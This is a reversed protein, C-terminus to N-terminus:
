ILNSIEVRNARRYGCDMHFAQQTGVETLCVAPVFCVFHLKCELTCEDKHFEYSALCHFM